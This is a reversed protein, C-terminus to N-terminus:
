QIFEVDGVVRWGSSKKVFSVRVPYALSRMAKCMGGIVMDIAKQDSLSGFSEVNCRIRYSLLCNTMTNSEPHCDFNEVSEIQQAVRFTGFVVSGRTICWGNDVKYNQLMAGVSVTGSQANLFGDVKNCRRMMFENFATRAGGRTLKGDLTVTLGSNEPSNVFGNKKIFAVAPATEIGWNSIPTDFYKAWFVKGVHAKAYWLLFDQKKKVSLTAFDKSQGERAIIGNKRMLNLAMFYSAVASGANSAAEMKSSAIRQGLALDYILVSNATKSTGMKQVNSLGLLTMAQLDGRKALSHLDDLTFEDTPRGMGTRAGKLMSFVAKDYLYDPHKKPHINPKTVLNINSIKVDYDSFRAIASGVVNGDFFYEVDMANGGDTDAMTSCFRRLTDFAYFFFSKGYISSDLYDLMLLSSLRVKVPVLSQCQSRTGDSDKLYVYHGFPASLIYHDDLHDQEMINPTRNALPNPGKSENQKVSAAAFVKAITAAVDKPPVVSLTRAKESLLKQIEAIPDARQLLPKWNGLIDSATIPPSQRNTKFEAYSSSDRFAIGSFEGSRIIGSRIQQISAETFLETGISYRRTALCGKIQEELRIFTEESLEHAPKGFFETFTQTSFMAQLASNEWDYQDLYPSYQSHTDFALQRLNQDKGTDLWREIIQRCFYIQNDIKSYKGGLEKIPNHRLLFIHKCQGPFVLSLYNPINRGNVLKSVKGKKGRSNVHRFQNKGLPILTLDIERAFSNLLGRNVGNRYSLHAGIKQINGRCAAIGDWYGELSRTVSLHKNPTNPPKKIITQSTTQLASSDGDRRHKVTDQSLTTSKNSLLLVKQAPLLRGTPRFGNERQFASIASQTQRGSIGDPIGANFGLSSLANQIQRIQETTQGNKKIRSARFSNRRNRHRKKLRSNKNSLRDIVVAGIGIAVGVGLARRLKSQAFVPSTLGGSVVALAIIGALSYISIYRINVLIM